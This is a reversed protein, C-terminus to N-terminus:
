DWIAEQLIDSTSDVAPLKEELSAV